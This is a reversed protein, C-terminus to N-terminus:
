DKKLMKLQKKIWIVKVYMNKRKRLKIIKYKEKNINSICNEVAIYIKKTTKIEVCFIKFNNTHMIIYM